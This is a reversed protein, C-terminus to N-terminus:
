ADGLYPVSETSALLYFSHPTPGSARHTARISNEAPVVSSAHFGPNSRPFAITKNSSVKPRRLPRVISEALREAM